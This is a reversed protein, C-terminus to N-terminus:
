KDTIGRVVDFCCFQHGPIGRVQNEGIWWVVHLILAVRFLLEFILPLIPSRDTASVFQYVAERKNTFKFRLDQM